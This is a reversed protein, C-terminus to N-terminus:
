PHSRRFCGCCAFVGSTFVNIEQVLFFFACFFPSFLVGSGVVRHFVSPSRQITHFHSVHVFLPSMDEFPDSDFVLVLTWPPLAFCLSGVLFDVKGQSLPFSPFFFFWAFPSSPTPSFFCFSYDGAVLPSFAPLPATFSPCSNLAELFQHPNTQPFFIPKSLLVSENRFFSFFLCNSTSLL